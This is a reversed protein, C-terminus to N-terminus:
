KAVLIAHLSYLVHNVLSFALILIYLLMGPLLTPLCLILTIASLPIKQFRLTRRIWRLSVVILHWRKRPLWVTTSDCHLKPFSSVTLVDQYKVDTTVLGRQYVYSEKRQSSSPPSERLRHVVVAIVSSVIFVFVFIVLKSRDPASDVREIRRSSSQVRKERRGSSPASRQSQDRKKAMDSDSAPPVIIPIRLQAAYSM